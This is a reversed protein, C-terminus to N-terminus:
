NDVSHEPDSSLGARLSRHSILSGSVMASWILTLSVVATMVIVIPVEGLFDTNRRLVFSVLYGATGLLGLTLHLGGQRAVVTDAAVKRYEFVGTGASGFSALLGVVVLWYASRPYTYPEPAAHSAVDFLFSCTFAGLAISATLLHLVVSTAGNSTGIPESESASGGAPSTGGGALERQILGIIEARDKDSLTM